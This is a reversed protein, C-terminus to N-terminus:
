RRKHLVQQFLIIYGSMDFFYINACQYQFIAIAQVEDGPCDYILRQIHAYIYAHLMNWPAQKAYYPFFEGRIYPYDLLM